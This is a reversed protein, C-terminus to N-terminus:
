EIQGEGKVHAGRETMDRYPEAVDEASDKSRDAAAEEGDTPGRGADAHIGAERDEEAKTDDDVLDDPKRDDPMLCGGCIPALDM